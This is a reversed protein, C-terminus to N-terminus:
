WRNLTPEPDKITSYSDITTRDMLWHFDGQEDLPM